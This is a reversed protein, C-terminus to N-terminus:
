IETGTRVSSSRFDSGPAGTNGTRINGVKNRLNDMQERAQSRVSEFQDRARDAVDSAKHAIDNRIEEGRKPAFLLALSAGVGLGISFAALANTSMREGHYQITSYDSM